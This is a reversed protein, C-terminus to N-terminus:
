SPTTSVAQDIAHVAGNVATTVPATTPVTTGVHQVLTTVSSGVADVISDASAVASPVPTGGSTTPVPVPAAQAVPSSPSGTTTAAGSLTVHGGTARGSALTAMTAPASTGASAMALVGSGVAGTLSGPAAPSTSLGDGRGAGGGGQLAQAADKPSAHQVSGATIGAAVLAVLASCAAITRYRSAERRWSPEASVAAAGGTVLAAKGATSGPPVVVGDAARGSTGPGRTLARSRFVEELSGVDSPEHNGVM